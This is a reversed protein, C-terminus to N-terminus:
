RRDSDWIAYSVNKYLKHGCEKLTLLINGRHHSEHAVLYGFTTFTGKKFGKAGPEGTLLTPLFQEIASSSDSLAEKLELDSRLDDM